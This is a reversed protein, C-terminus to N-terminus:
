QNGNAKGSATIQAHQRHKQYQQQEDEYEMIMFNHELIEEPSIRSDPRMCLMQNFLDIFEGDSTWKNGQFDYGKKISALLSTLGREM